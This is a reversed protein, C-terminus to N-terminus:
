FNPGPPAPTGDLTLGKDFMQTPNHPAILPAFIAIAIFFLVIAAGLLATKDHRFRYWVLAWQSHSTVATEEPEEGVLSATPSVQASATAATSVMAVPALAGVTCKWTKARVPRRRVSM